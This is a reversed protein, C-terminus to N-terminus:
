KNSRYSKNYLDIIRDTIDDQHSTYFLGNTGIDFIAAYGEKKGSESIIKQIDPILEQTVQQDRIKMEENADEIFRKYDRFKKQYSMEKERFASETLLTRQKELADKLKQLEEEKDQIQTKKADVFKKLEQAAAKGAESEFLIKKINVFAIREAAVANAL